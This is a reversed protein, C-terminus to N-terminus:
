LKDKLEERCKKCLRISRTDYEDLGVTISKVEGGEDSSTFCSNCRSYSKDAQDVRIM